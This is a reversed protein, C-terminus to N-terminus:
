GADASEIQPFAKKRLLEWGHDENLFQLEHVCGIEAVEKIRTTILLKSGLAVNRKGIPFAPRLCEWDEIKWIDDLVILCKKEQQIEYLQLVLENDGMSNIEEGGKGPFIQKWIHQLVNRTQCHQTICVWVFIEFTHRVLTHNYVKKALTTKGLGGMGWVSVVGSYHDTIVLSVLREINDDMGVFDDEILHPYSMRRWREREGDNARSTSSEGDVTSRIDYAQLSSTLNVIKTRVGAIECGVKHLAVGESFICAFRTLLKKVRGGTGEVSRKAAVKIAYIELLDEIRESLYRVERIWNRVREDGSERRAYADKLFCKMRRLEAQIEEVEGKVNSLFRAEQILLDGLRDVAFTVVADVM